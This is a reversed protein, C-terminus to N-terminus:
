FQEFSDHHQRAYRIVKVQDVAVLWLQVEPRRVEKLGDAGQGLGRWDPGCELRREQEQMQVFSPRNERALHARSRCESPAAGALASFIEPGGSEEPLAIWRRRANRAVYGPRNPTSRNPIARRQRM